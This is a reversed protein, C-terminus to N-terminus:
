PVCAEIFSLLENIPERKRPMSLQKFKKLEEKTKIMEKHISLKKIIYDVKECVLMIMSKSFLVPEIIIESNKLFIGMGETMEKSSNNHGIFECINKKIKGEFVFTRGVPIESHTIKSPFINHAIKNRLYYVMDRFSQFKYSDIYSCLTGNFKSLECLFNEYDSHNPNLTINYPSIKKRGIRWNIIWTLSDFIATILMMFYGFYYGIIDPYDETKKLKNLDEQINRFKIEELINRTTILNVIRLNISTLFEQVTGDFLRFNNRKTAVAARWAINLSPVLLKKGFIVSDWKSFIYRVSKYELGTLLHIFPRISSLCEALTGIFTTEHFTYKTDFKIKSKTVALDGSAAAGVLELPLDKVEDCEAHYVGEYDFGQGILRIANLEKNVAIPAYVKFSYKRQKIEKNSIYLIEFGKIKDLISLYQLEKSNYDYSNGDIALRLELNNNIQPKRIIEEWFSFLLIDKM